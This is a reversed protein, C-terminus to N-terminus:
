CMPVHSVVLSSGECLLPARCGLGLVWDTPVDVFTQDVYFNPRFVSVNM